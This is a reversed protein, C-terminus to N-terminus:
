FTLCGNVVEVSADYIQWVEDSSFVFTNAGYEVMDGAQAVVDSGNITIPNTTAGDTLATTTVGLWKTAGGSKKALALTIFSIKDM